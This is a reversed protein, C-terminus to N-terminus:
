ILCKSIRFSKEEQIERKSSLLKRRVERGTFDDYIAKRFM